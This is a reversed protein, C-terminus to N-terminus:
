TSVMVRGFHHSLTGKSIGFRKELDRFSAGAARAAEIAPWDKRRNAASAKRAHERREAAPRDFANDSHTGIAINERSNDLSDDNLHRVSEAALFAEEGFKLCAVVQHVEVPNASVSITMYPRGKKDKRRQKIERGRIGIVTKGDKSVRGGRRVFHVIREKSKSM